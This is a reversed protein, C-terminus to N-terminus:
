GAAPTPAPEPPKPEPVKALTDVGGPPLAKSLCMWTEAMTENQGAKGPKPWIAAFTVKIEVYGARCRPCHFLEVSGEQLKADVPALASAATDIKSSSLAAVAEPMATLPVPQPEAIQPGLIPLELSAAAEELKGAGLSAAAQKVGALSVPRPKATEMFLDCNECFKAAKVRHNAHLGAAVAATIAGIVLCFVGFDGVGFVSSLAERTERSDFYEPATSMIMWFPGLALLASVIALVVSAFRSRNKGRKGALFTLHSAVVGLIAFMGFFTGLVVIITGIGLMIGRKMEKLISVMGISLLTGAVGVVVGALAGAPIGLIVGGTMWAIAEQPLKGSPHYASQVKPLENKWGQKEAQAEVKGTFQHQRAM